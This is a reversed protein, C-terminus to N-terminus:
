TTCIIREGGLKGNVLKGGGGGSLLIGKEYSTKKENKKKKKRQSRRYGGVDSGCVFWLPLIAMVSITEV